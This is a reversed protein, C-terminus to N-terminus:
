EKKNKQRTQYAETMKLRYEREDDDEGLPKEAYPDIKGTRVDSLISQMLHKSFDALIETMKDELVSELRKIPKEWDIEKIRGAQESQIERIKSILDKEYDGQNEVPYESARCLADTIIERTGLKQNQSEAEKIKRTLVDIAQRESRKNPNLRFSIVYSQSM